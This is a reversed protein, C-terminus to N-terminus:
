KSTFTKVNPFEDLVPLPAAAALEAWIQRINSIEELIDLKFLYVNCLYMFIRVILIKIQEKSANKTLDFGEYSKQKANQKLQGKCQVKAKM